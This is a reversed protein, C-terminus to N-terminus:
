DLFIFHFVGTLYSIESDRVDNPDADDPLDARALRVLGEKSAEILHNKYQEETLGFDNSEAKLQQWVHSIFVKNNGFWGTKSNRAAEKVKTAFTELNFEEVESPEDLVQAEGLAQLLIAKCLTKSNATKAQELLLAALEKLPAYAELPLDYHKRLIAISLEEIRGISKLHKTSNPAPLDLAIAVLYKKIVEWPQKHESASFSKIGLFELIHEKGETTLLYRGKNPSSLWNSNLLGTLEKEILKAWIDKRQSKFAKLDKKLEGTTYGKDEDRLLFRALIVKKLPVQETHM